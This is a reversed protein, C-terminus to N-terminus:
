SSSLLMFVPLMFITQSAGATSVLWTVEWLADLLTTSAAVRIKQEKNFKAAQLLKSRALVTRLQMRVASIGGGRGPKSSSSFPSPPRPSPPAVQYVKTRTAASPTSFKQLCLDHM